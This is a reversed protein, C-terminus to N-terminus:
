YEGRCVFCNKESKDWRLAGCEDCSLLGLDNLFPHLDDTQINAFGSDGIKVQIDGLSEIVVELGGTFQEKNINEQQFQNILEEIQPKLNDHANYLELEAEVDLEIDM